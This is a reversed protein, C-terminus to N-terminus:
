RGLFARAGALLAAGGDQQQQNMDHAFTAFATIMVVIWIASLVTFVIGVVMGGTALGWGEEGTRRIQKRAVVGLVIAAPAFIFAFVLALIALTNTGQRPPYPPYGYPYPGPVPPGQRYDGHDQYGPGAQQDPYPSAAYPDQPAYTM